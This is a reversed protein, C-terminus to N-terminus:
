STRSTRVDKGIQASLLFVINQEQCDVIQVVPDATQATMRLGLRGIDISKGLFPDKKLLRITGCRQAIRGAHRDHGAQPGRRGADVCVSAHVIRVAVAPCRPETFNGLVLVPYSDRLIEPLMPVHGPRASFYEM